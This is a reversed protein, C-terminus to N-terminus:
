LTSLCGNDMLIEYDDPHLDEEEETIQEEIDELRDEYEELEEEIEEMRGSWEEELEAMLEMQEDFDLDDVDEQLDQLDMVLEFLGTDQSAEFTLDAYQAKLEHLREYEKPPSLDKFEEVADKVADIIEGIDEATDLSLAPNDQLDDALDGCAEAYEEASLRDGGCALMWLLGSFLLFIALKKMFLGCYAFNVFHRSPQCWGQPYM